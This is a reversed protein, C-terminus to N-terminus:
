DDDFCKISMKVVTFPDIPHAKSIFMVIKKQIIFM